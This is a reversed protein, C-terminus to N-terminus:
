YRGFVRHSRKKKLPSQEFREFNIQSQAIPSDVAGTSGPAYPSYAHGYHASNSPAPAAFPVDGQGGFRSRQGGLAGGVSQEFDAEATAGQLSETQPGAAASAQESALAPGSHRAVLTEIQEQVPQIQQTVKRFPQIIERIEQFVPRTVTHVLRHPEEESQTESYSGKSPQHDQEVKLPSSSSKFKLQLENGPPSDIEVLIPESPGLNSPADVFQVSQQRQVALTIPGSPVSQARQEAGLAAFQDSHGYSGYSAPGAYAAGGFSAPSPASLGAGSSYGPGSQAYSPQSPFSGYSPSLGQGLASGADAVAQAPRRLGPLSAHGGKRGGFNASALSASLLLLLCLPTPPTMRWYHLHTEAFGEKILLHGCMAVAM